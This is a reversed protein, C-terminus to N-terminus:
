EMWRTEKIDARSLVRRSIKAIQRVYDLSIGNFARGRDGAAWKRGVLGVGNWEDNWM